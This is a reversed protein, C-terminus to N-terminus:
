SSKDFQLSKKIPKTTLFRKKRGSNEADAVPGGYDNAGGFKPCSCCFARSGTM